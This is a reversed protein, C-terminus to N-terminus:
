RQINTHYSSRRLSFKNKKMFIPINIQIFYGLEDFPSLFITIIHWQQHPATYGNKEVTFCGRRAAQLRCLINAVIPPICCVTCTCYKTQTGGLTIKRYVRTVRQFSFFTRCMIKTKVIM